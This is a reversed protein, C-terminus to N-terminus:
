ETIRYYRVDKLDYPCESYLHIVEHCKGWKSLIVPGPDHRGVVIGSHIAEGEEFYVVVDGALVKEFPIQTYDDEELIKAIETAKDVWTRRSAFTLGHCNYVSSPGVERHISNQYKKKHDQIQFEIGAVLGERDLNNEITSTRRTELALKAKNLILAPM